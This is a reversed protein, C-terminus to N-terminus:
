GRTARCYMSTSARTVTQNLLRCTASMDSFVVHRTDHRCGQRCTKAGHRRCTLYCKASMDAVSMAHRDKPPDPRCASMRCKGVLGAPPHTIGLKALGPIIIAPTLTMRFWPAMSPIYSILSHHWRLDSFTPM